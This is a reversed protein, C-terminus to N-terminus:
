DAAEIATVLNQIYFLDGRTFAPVDLYKVLEERPENLIFAKAQFMAPYNYLPSMAGENIMAEYRSVFWFPAVYDYEGVAEQVEELANQRLYEGLEPTLMMFNRAVNLSRRHYRNEVWPTDKDFIEVRLHLLRNLENTVTTRLQADEGSMGAMEQLELFGIYGAIYANLEYPREIFHESTAIDPVPAQIKFKAQIYITLSDSPFIQAYKWMSYINHQPYQWSWRPIYERKPFNAMSSEVEPPLPMAERGAGEAWGKSSYMVPNFYDQFERQLYTRTQQQLQLSLYPYAISMTYLTDGPNDFYDALEAYVTFSGNNYYGPRLPGADLMKQIELELLNTLESGTLLKPDQNCPQIELLPLKGSSQGPGFAIIANSRHVYLRGGYPIIPNQDGHNHYIGNISNSNGHYWGQLRPLHDLTAWMEDYGPALEDLNYSWLSSTRIGGRHIDFYDGLRDCCLNRYILSGGGSIAQPEAIAGQGGIVSLLNTGLKWGMVRGQTDGTKIFPSNQYPIDDPGIIPPYRNGSNTGWYAAPMYEAYGDGDSDFTYESGDSRNLVVFTRRWPKNEFYNTVRSADIIPHGNSWEESSVEPGLTTGDPEGPFLEGIELYRYHPFPNDEHDRVSMTGPNLGMRYSVSASFIVKDQYIVPWFSHYGDGPMRESKWVLAGTDARLAYAFNDNAAFYITGNDFAASLLIPGGTKFQWLLQGQHATEHAGIAYMTGDRNGAFVKGNVVLPNTAYGANAGEFNWLYEGTIANIAHLKRDYGGVYLTGDAVTPSNGLPLETDFRWAVDGNAADLAYLGRATSIFLLGDSAIIQTNQSIYAEVPRFWEVGLNGHVEESTWSTRQPNAAITSWGEGPPFSRPALSILPLYFEYEETEAGTSALLATPTPERAMIPTNTPNTQNAPEALPPGSSCASSLFFLGIILTIVSYFTSPKAQKSKVNNNRQFINNM